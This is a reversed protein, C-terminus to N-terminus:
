KTAGVVNLALLLEYAARRVPLGLDKKLILNADFVEEIILEKRIVIESAAFEFL